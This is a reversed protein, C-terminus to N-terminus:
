APGPGTAATRHTRSLRQRRRCILTQAAGAIWTRAIPRIETAVGHRALAGRLEALRAYPAGTADVVPHVRVEAWTVRALELMVALHDAFSFQASYVFLLHGALTLRFSRNAFPLRPLAAAVYWQGHQAYDAGFLHLAAESAPVYAQPSGPYDWDIPLASSAFIQPADRLNARVKRTIQGVGLAYIPDASVVRGGGGRVQAGFSSAGGPCDLVPGAMLDADDLAFMNQYDYLSRATVTVPRLGPESMVALRGFARAVESSWRTRCTARSPSSALEAAGIRSRSMRGMRWRPRCM